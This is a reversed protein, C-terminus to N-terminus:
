YWPDTFLYILWNSLILCKVIFHKLSNTVLNNHVQGLIFFIMPIKCSAIRLLIAWLFPKEKFDLRKQNLNIKFRRHLSNNVGSFFPSEKKQPFSIFDLYQCSNLVWVIFVEQIYFSSNYTIFFNMCIFEVPMYFHFLFGGWISVHSWGVKSTKLNITPYIKILNMTSDTLHILRLLFTWHLFTVDM